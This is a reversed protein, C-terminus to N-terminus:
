NGYRSINHHKEIGTRRNYRVLSVLCSLSVLNSHRVPLSWRRTLTYYIGINWDDAALPQWLCVGNRLAKRGGEEGGGEGGGRWPVSSLRGEINHVEKQWTYLWGRGTVEGNRGRTGGRRSRGRACRGGEEGRGGAFCFAARSIHTIYLVDTRASDYHLYLAFWGKDWTSTPRGVGLNRAIIKGDCCFERHFANEKGAM